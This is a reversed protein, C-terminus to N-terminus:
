QLSVLNPVVINAAHVDQVLIRQALTALGLEHLFQKVTMAHKPGQPTRILISGEFLEAFMAGSQLKADEAAAQTEFTKVPHAYTGGMQSQVMRYLTFVQNM